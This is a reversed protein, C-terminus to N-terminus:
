LGFIEALTLLSKLVPTKGLVGKTAWNLGVMGGTTLYIGGWWKPGLIPDKFYFPEYQAAFGSGPLMIPDTGAGGKTFGLMGRTEFDTSSGTIPAGGGFTYGAPPM